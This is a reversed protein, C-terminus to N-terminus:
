VLAASELGYLREPNDCVIAKRDAADLGEAAFFDDVVTKPATATPRPTRQQPMTATHGTATNPTLTDAPRAAPQAPKPLRQADHSSSGQQGPLTREEGVGGGLGQDVVAKCAQHAM